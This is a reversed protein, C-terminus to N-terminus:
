AEPPPVPRPRMQAKLERLQEALLRVEMEARRARRRLSLESIWVLAAGLVWAIAAGILMAISLPVAWKVDTPWLGITVLTRNSLMFIVLLLLFPAFLLWRLLRLAPRRARRSPPTKAPM